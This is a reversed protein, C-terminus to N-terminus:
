QLQKCLETVCEEITKGGCEIIVDAYKEYLPEREKFADELSNGKKLVIGRTSIDGVRQKIEPYPVKLYVVPGLSKLHKMAAESYVASGGTAIVFGPLQVESLIKEELKLFTDIGDEDIINQLLKESQQQIMIDTDAFNMCIAKALLVGLTSKGAGAMGILTISRINM